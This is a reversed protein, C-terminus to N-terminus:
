AGANEEPTPPNMVDQYNGKVEKVKVNELLKEIVLDELALTQFHQLQQENSYVHTIIEEKDDYSEAFSEIAARVKDEDATINNDQIFKNIVLGSAVRKEARDKFLEAPFMSPDIQQQGGGFQQVMQQRLNNIEDEVLAAPIAIDHADVIADIIRGKLQNKLGGELANDMSERLQARFAEEGGETVGYKAFFEDNLEAPVPKFSKIAKVTFQVAKGALEDSHYTDPFTLDLVREESPKIGLLGDEFGSIMTNSGLVLPTEESSGGEFTEGDIKGEFAIIVQDGKKAARKTDKMQQQQEQLQKIQEDVDKDEVQALTKEVEIASLDAFEIEPFVEFTATYELDKGPELEKPEINPQGAPNLNEQTVAEYFSQRMVEGVVEQRIGAGYRQKVVKMPVKGPRFGDIRARQATEKLRGEVESEIREAPVGITLRREISSLNEVSVQM